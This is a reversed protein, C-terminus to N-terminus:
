SIFHPDIRKRGFFWVIKWVGNPLGFSQMLVEQSLAIYVGQLYDNM